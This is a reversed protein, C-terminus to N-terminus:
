AVESVRLGTAYMLEFLTRDRVGEPTTTDAAELLKEVEAQTLFRPLKQGGQPRTIDATPAAKIHADLLLFRYFERGAAEAAARLRALDRRYSELSNKSLGKEVQLFSLYERILDRPM